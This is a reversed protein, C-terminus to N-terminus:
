SLNGLTEFLTDVVKDIYILGTPLQFVDVNVNREFFNHIFPHAITDERKIFGDFWFERLFTIFYELRKV